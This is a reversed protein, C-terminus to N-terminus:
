NTLEATLTDEGPVKNYAITFKYDIFAMDRSFTTTSTTGHFFFPLIFYCTSSDATIDCNTTDNHYDTYGFGTESPFYFEGMDAPVATM